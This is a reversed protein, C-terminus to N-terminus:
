LLCNHVICTDQLLGTKCFPGGWCWGSDAAQVCVCWWQQVDELTPLMVADICKCSGHAHYPQVLGHPSDAAFNAACLMFGGSSCMCHKTPPKTPQAANFEQAGLVRAYARPQLGSGQTQMGCCCLLLWQAIGKYVTCIHHGAMQGLEQYCSRGGFTVCCM